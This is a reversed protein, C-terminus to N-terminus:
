TTGVYRGPGQEQTILNIKGTFRPAWQRRNWWESHRTAFGTASSARLHKLLLWSGLREACFSWARAQYGGARVPYRAICSEVVREVQGICRLWFEVPYVGLEIGGPIFVDERYFALVEARELVGHEVAQATFRLLDEVHHTRSYNKLYTKRYWPLKTFVVPEGVLFDEDGPWLAEAFPAGQLRDKHVADMSKYKPVPVGSIRKRSVFKRYQCLGVHTADPRNTLLHSKLAFSGATGGLIPHHPVWQPALDRLNLKGEGQADGLYIPTVYAPFAIWLPVHTICAYVLRPPSLPSLPPM